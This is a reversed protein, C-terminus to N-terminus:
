RLPPLLTPSRLALPRGAQDRISTGSVAYLVIGLALAVAGGIISPVALSGATEATAPNNDANAVAYILGFGLGAGLVVGGLGM